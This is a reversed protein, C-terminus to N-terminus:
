VSTYIQNYTKLLVWDKMTTREKKKLGWLRRPSSNLKKACVDLLRHLRVIEKTKLNILETNDWEYREKFKPHKTSYWGKIAVERGSSLSKVSDYSLGEEKAFKVLYSVYRRKGSAHVLLVKPKIRKKRVKTKKAM